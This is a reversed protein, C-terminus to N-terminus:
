DFTSFDREMVEERTFRGTRTPFKEWQGHIEFQKIGKSAGHSFIRALVIELTIYMQKNGQVSIAIETPSMRMIIGATTRERLVTEAFKTDIFGVKNCSIILRADNQSSKPASVRQASLSPTNSQESIAKDQRAQMAKAFEQPTMPTM